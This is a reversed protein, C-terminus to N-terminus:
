IAPSACLRISTDLVLVSRPLRYVEALFQRVGTYPQRRYVELLSLPVYSYDLPPEYPKPIAHAVESSERGVWTLRASIVHWDEM